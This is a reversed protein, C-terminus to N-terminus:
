KEKKALKLQCTILATGAIVFVFFGFYDRRELYVGAGMYCLMWTITLSM